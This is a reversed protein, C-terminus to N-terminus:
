FGIDILKSVDIQIMFNFRERTNPTHSQIDDIRKLFKLTVIENLLGFSLYVSDLRDKYIKKGALAREVGVGWMPYLLSDMHYSAGASLSWYHDHYEDAGLRNFNLGADFGINDFLNERYMFGLVQSEESFNFAYRLGFNKWMALPWIENESYDIVSSVVPESYDLVDYIKKNMDKNECGSCGGSIGQMHFVGDLINNLNDANWKKPDDVIRSLCSSYTIHSGDTETFNKNLLESLIKLYDPFSVNIGKIKNDSPFADSLAIYINSFMNDIKLSADFEINYLYKVFDLTDEDLEEVGHSNIWDVIAEIEEERWGIVSIDVARGEEHTTSEREVGEEGAVSTVIFPLAYRGEVFSAVAVALLKM